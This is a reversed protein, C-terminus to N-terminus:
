LCSLMLTWIFIFGDVLICLYWSNYESTRYFYKEGVHNMLMNSEGKIM